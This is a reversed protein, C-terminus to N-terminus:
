GCFFTYLGHKASSNRSAGERPRRLVYKLFSAYFKDQGLDHHSFIVSYQNLCEITADRSEQTWSCSQGGCIVFILCVSWLRKTDLHPINRTQFAGVHNFKERLGKVHLRRKTKCPYQQYDVSLEDHIEFRSLFQSTCFSTKFGIYNAAGRGYIIEYIETLDISFVDKGQFRFVTEDAPILIPIGRSVHSFEHFDDASRVVNEALLGSNCNEATILSRLQSPNLM